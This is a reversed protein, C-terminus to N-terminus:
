KHYPHNNKISLGRYIQEFLVLKAIKHSMTLPSLSINVGRKKFSEEFGYAGAIFFNIKSHEFINSFEHSDILKGDPTLIVNFGDNMYKEFMKSYELKPNQSKALKSNYLTHNKVDAFQKAKKIFDKIEQQFDEKKEISYVNIQM